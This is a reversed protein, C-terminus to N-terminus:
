AYSTISVQANTNSEDHDDGSLPEEKVAVYPLPSYAVLECEDDKEEGSTPEVKLIGTTIPLYALLPSERHQQDNEVKMKVRFNPAEEM